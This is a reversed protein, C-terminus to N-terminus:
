RGCVEDCVPTMWEQDCKGFDKQEQCTFGGVKIESPTIAETNVEVFGLPADQSAAAFELELNAGDTGKNTLKQYLDRYIDIHDGGQCHGSGRNQAHKVPCVDRIMVVIPQHRYKPLCENSICRIKIKRGCM